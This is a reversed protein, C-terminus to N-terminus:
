RVAPDTVMKEVASDALIGMTDFVPITDSKPKLLQLDTCALAIADAGQAELNKIVQELYERDHNNYEGNILRKIIECMQQQESDSPVVFDIKERNLITEYVCNQVTAMTSVLGVKKYGHKQIYSVTEEVISLVPIKVSERIANIHLHLTNCPMVLFDVKAIELRKAETTLLPIYKDINKNELICERETQYPVPVNSIVVLPRHENDLRQMDFVVRLYFEATVGAGLGGIIGLSKM